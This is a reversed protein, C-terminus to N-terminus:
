ADAAAPGILRTVQRPQDFALTAPKNRGIQVDRIGLDGPEVVLIEEAAILYEVVSGFLFAQPQIEAITEPNQAFDNRVQCRAIQELNAASVAKEKVLYMSEYM